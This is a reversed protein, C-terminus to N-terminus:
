TCINLKSCSTHVNAFINVWQISFRQWSPTANATYIHVNEGHDYDYLRLLCFYIDAVFLLCSSKTKREICWPDIFIMNWIKFTKPPCACSGLHNLHAYSPFCLKVELMLSNFNIHFLSLLESCCILLLYTILWVCGELLFSGVIVWFGMNQVMQWGLWTIGLVAM